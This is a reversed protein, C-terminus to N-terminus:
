ATPWPLSTRLQFEGADTVTRILQGGALEVRETLGILGTGTGPAIPPAHPDRALPNRIDIILGDGPGGELVIEVPQGAAHKRANTLGEQVVRYVTRGLLGSVEATDAVRSHLRVNTGAVQSEEILKPLDTLLHQPPGSDPAMHWDTDRLVGIVERLEGLAQHAGERIVGAARALREPSSDPRYELAGAYTALLSLRHALVDHMERAIQAREATRAARMRRDQDAEAREAREQLSILLSHRAQALAGWATLGAYGFVVLVLWWGFPLEGVPRWLGRSGNAVIGALGTAIAVAFKRRQAVQLAGTAATPIAAPSVASLVVLVITTAVPWRLLAPMLLCSVVGISIDILLRGPPQTGVIILTPIAVGFLMAVVTAINNDDSWTNDCSM